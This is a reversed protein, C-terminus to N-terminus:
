VGGKGRGAGSRHVKLQHSLLGSISGFIALGSTVRFVPEIDKDISFAPYFVLCAIVVGVVLLFSAGTPGRLQSCGGFRFALALFIALAMASASLARVIVNNLMPSDLSIAPNDHLYGAIGMFLALSIYWAWAPCLAGDCEGKMM